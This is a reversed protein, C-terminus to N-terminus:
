RARLGDLYRSVTLADIRALAEEVAAGIVGPEEGLSGLVQQMSALNQDLDAYMAAAVQPVEVLVRGVTNLVALVAVNGTAKLLARAFALDARGMAQVDDRPAELLAAAAQALVDVQALLRARHRVVLRVAMLRRIELFDRLLSAAAEPRDELVQLWLPVLSLDGAELPDLVAVGSGPHAQVLGSRELRAVARQVTAPNVEFSRALERVPPLRSGPAHEGRLIAVALSREIRAAANPLSM